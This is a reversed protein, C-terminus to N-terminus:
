ENTIRFWSTGKLFGLFSWSEDDDILNEFPKCPQKKHKKWDASQCERQHWMSCICKGRKFSASVSCYTAITCRSCQFMQIDEDEGTGPRPKMRAKLYGLNHCVQEVNATEEFIKQLDEHRRRRDAAPENPNDLDSDSIGRSDYYARVIGRERTGLIRPCPGNRLSERRAQLVRERDRICPEKDHLFPCEPDLCGVARAFFQLLGAGFRGNARCPCGHRRVRVMCPIVEKPFGGSKLKEFLEDWAAFGTTRTAHWNLMMNWFERHENVWYMIGGERCKWNNKYYHLYAEVAAPSVGGGPRLGLQIGPIPRLPYSAYQDYRISYPYLERDESTGEGIDFHGQIAARLAHYRGLAIEAQSRGQEHIRKQRVPDLQKQHIYRGTGYYPSSPDM